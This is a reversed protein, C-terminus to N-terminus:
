QDRAVDTDYQKNDFLKLMDVAVFHISDDILFARFMFTFADRRKNYTNSVATSYPYKIGIIITAIEASSARPFNETQVVRNWDFVLRPYKVPPNDLYRDLMDTLENDDEGSNNCNPADCWVQLKAMFCMGNERVLKELRSPEDAIGCGEVFEKLLQRLTTNM